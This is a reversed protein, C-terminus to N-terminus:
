RYLRSAPPPPLAARHYAHSLSLYAKSERIGRADRVIKLHNIKRIVLSPWLEHSLTCVEHGPWRELDRMLEPRCAGREVLARLLRAEAISGRTLQERPTLAHEVGVAEGIGGAVDLHVLGIRQRGLSRTLEADSRVLAEADGPWSLADLLRRLEEYSLGAICLRISEWRMVSPVGLCPVVAGAPLQSLCRALGDVLVAPPDSGILARLPALVRELERPRGLEAATFDLFLRPEPLPPAGPPLDLELWLGAVGQWDGGSWGRAFAELHEWADGSDAPLLERRLKSRGRPDV